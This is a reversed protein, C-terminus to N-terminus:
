FTGCFVVVVFFKDVNSTGREREALHSEFTYQIKYLRLNYPNSWNEVARTKDSFLTMALPLALTCCGPWASQRPEAKKTPKSLTSLMKKTQDAVRSSSPM